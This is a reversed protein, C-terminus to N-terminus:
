FLTDGTDQHNSVLAVYVFCNEKHIVELTGKLGYGVQVVTGLVAHKM